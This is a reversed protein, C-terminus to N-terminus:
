QYIMFQYSSSSLISSVIMVSLGALLYFQCSSSSLQVHCCKKLTMKKSFQFVNEPDHLILLVVLQWYYKYLFFVGLGWSSLVYSWFKLFIHSPCVLQWQTRCYLYVLRYFECVCFNQSFYALCQYCILWYFFSIFLLVSFSYFLFLM